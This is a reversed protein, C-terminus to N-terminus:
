EPFTVARIDYPLDPDDQEIVLYYRGPGDLLRVRMQRLDV